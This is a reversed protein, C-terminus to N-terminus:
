ARLELGVADGLGSSLERRYRAAQELNADRMTDKQGKIQKEVEQQAWYVRSAANVQLKGYASLRASLCDRIM